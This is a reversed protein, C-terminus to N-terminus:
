KERNNEIISMFLSEMDSTETKKYNKLLFYKLLKLHEHKEGCCAVYEKTAQIAEESTFTFNYAVILTYLKQVIEETTGQWLYTTGPKNGEPFCAQLQKALAYFDKIGCQQVRDDSEMLIRAVLNKTNDSPIPPYNKLLNKSVLGKEVLENCLEPYNQCYISTLLAIFQSLSLNHKQLVSTNITFKM